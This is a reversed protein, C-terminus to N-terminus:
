IMKDLYYISANLKIQGIKIKNPSESINLTNQDLGLKSQRDQIYACCLSHPPPPKWQEFSVHMSAM